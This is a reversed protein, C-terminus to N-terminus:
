SPRKPREGFSSAAAGQEKVGSSPSRSSSNGVIPNTVKLWPFMAFDRENETYLAKVGADRMTEAIMMDWFSTGMTNLDEVARRVTVHDYDLKGWNPSDIFGNVILAAQAKSLPKATKRTLVVYLEGLIQGSVHYRSEGLFGSRVIKECIKRRKADSNDYAYALINTDVVAPEDSM